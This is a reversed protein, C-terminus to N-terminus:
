LGIASQLTRINAPTLGYARMQARGARGDRFMNVVPGVKRIDHAALKEVVPAPVGNLTGLLRNPSPRGNTPAAPTTEPSEAILQEAAHTVERAFQQQAQKVAARFARLKAKTM